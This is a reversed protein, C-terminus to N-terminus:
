NHVYSERHIVYITESEKSSMDRSYETMIQRELSSDSDRLYLVLSYIDRCFWCRQEADGGGDFAGLEM